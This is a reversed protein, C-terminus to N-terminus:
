ALSLIPFIEADSFLPRAAAALTAVAATAAAAVAIPAIAFFDRSAYASKSCNVPPTSVRKLVDASVTFFYAASAYLVAPKDAFSYISVTVLKEADSNCDRPPSVSFAASYALVAIVSIDSLCFDTRNFRM